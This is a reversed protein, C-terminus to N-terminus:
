LRTPHQDTDDNGFNTQREIGRGCGSCDCQRDCTNGDPDHQLSRQRHASGAKRRRFVYRRDQGVPRPDLWHRGASNHLRRGFNYYRNSRGTIAQGGDSLVPMGSSTVLQGQNDLHMAGNRTYQTAGAKTQVQFYGPGQIALDLPNGTSTITGPSTDRYTSKDIVYHISQGSNNNLNSILTDFDIGERKFGTTSSNAVNNAIIDVSRQLAIQDSLLVLSASM